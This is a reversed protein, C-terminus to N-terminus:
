IKELDNKRRKPSRWADYSAPIKVGRLERSGSRAAAGSRHAFDFNKSSSEWFSERDLNSRNQTWSLASGEPHLTACLGRQRRSSRRRGIRTQKQM